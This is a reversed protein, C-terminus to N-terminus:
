PLLGKENLKATLEAVLSTLDEITPQSIVEDPVEIDEILKGNMDWVQNRAM